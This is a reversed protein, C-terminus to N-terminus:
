FDKTQSVLYNEDENQLHSLTLNVQRTLIVIGTRSLSGTQPRDGEPKAVRQWTDQLSLVLLLTPVLKCIEPPFM